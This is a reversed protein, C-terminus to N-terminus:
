GKDVGLCGAGAWLSLEQAEVHTRGQNSEEYSGEQRHAYTHSHAVGYDGTHDAAEM